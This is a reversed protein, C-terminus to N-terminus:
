VMQLPDLPRRCYFMRLESNEREREREGGRGNRILRICSNIFLKAVSLVFWRAIKERFTKDTQATVTVKFSQPCLPGYPDDYDRLREIQGDTEERETEEGGGM